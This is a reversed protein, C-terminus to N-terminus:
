LVVWWEDMIVISYQRGRWIRKQGGKGATRMIDIQEM